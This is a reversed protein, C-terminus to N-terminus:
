EIVQDARALVSQPIKLGLAKATKLNIVLEFKTPQEVPLDAAKAGKLIKDVFVVARRTMDQFDPSYSMLGGSQAFHPWGYIAPRGSQAALGIIRIRQTFIFLDDQTMLAGARWRAATQFTGELHEPASVELLRLEIGLPQAVGQIHRIQPANSPNTPNSLVAMRSLRPLLEKLLELRKAALEPSLMSLGTVNGGPRGLSAVIGTAVPDGVGVMVIPIGRTAQLTAQVVPQSSAVIVDVNLRPLESVIQSLHEAKEVSRVEFTLNQGEVYGRQRMEQRFINFTSMPDTVPIPTIWAVRHTKATTQAEGTVAMALIATIVSFVRLTRTM